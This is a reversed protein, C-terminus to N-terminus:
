FTYIWNTAYGCLPLKLSYYGSQVDRTPYVMLIFPVKFFCLRLCNETVMNNSIKTSYESVTTPM